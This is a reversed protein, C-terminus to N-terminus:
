ILFNKGQKLKGIGNLIRLPMSFKELAMSFKWHPQSNKWHWQSNGIHNLIKELAM